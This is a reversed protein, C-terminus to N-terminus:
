GHGALRARIRAGCRRWCERPGSGRELAHAQGLRRSAELGSRWANVFQRFRGVTVDYKDLRFTSITAPDALGVPVGGEPATWDGGGGLPDLDYTRYYTGGPVELSTCCNEKASGCDTLGPGGPACHPATSPIGADAADASSSEGNADADDLCTGSECPGLSQGGDGVPMTADGGDNEPQGSAVGADAPTTDSVCTGSEPDCTENAPCLSPAVGFGCAKGHVPGTMSSVLPTCRASFLVNLQRVQNTPVEFVMERTDLTVQGKLVSSVLTVSATPNGDSAIALTTPFFSAPTTIPYCVDWLTKGAESTVTVHLTDPDLSGDTEFVVVVGGLVTVNLCSTGAVVLAAVLAAFAARRLNRSPVRRANPRVRRPDGEDLVEDITLPELIAPM